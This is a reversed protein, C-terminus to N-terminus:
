LKEERLKKFEIKPECLLLKYELHPLVNSCRLSRFKKKLNKGNYLYKSMEQFYSTM